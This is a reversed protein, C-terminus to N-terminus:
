CEPCGCDTWAKVLMDAIREVTWPPKNRNKTEKFGCERFSAFYSPGWEHADIEELKVGPIRRGLERFIAVADFAARMGEHYDVGKQWANRRWRKKRKAMSTM